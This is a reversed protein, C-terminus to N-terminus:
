RAIPRISRRSCAPHMGPRLLGAPGHRRRKAQLAWSADMFRGHLAVAIVSLLIKFWPICPICLTPKIWVSIWPDLFVNRRQALFNKDSACLFFLSGCGLSAFRFSTSIALPLHGLLANWIVLCISV